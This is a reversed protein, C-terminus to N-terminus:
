QAWTRLGGPLRPQLRNEPEFCSQSCLQLARSHTEDKGRGWQQHLLKEQTQAMGMPAAGIKAIMGVVRNDSAGRDIADVVDRVTQRDTLLLQATPTDPVDEMFAEEFNAELITKSPVKGKSGIVAVMVIVMGILWLAGLIALFRVILKSM